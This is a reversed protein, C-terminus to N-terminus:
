ASDVSDAAHTPNGIGTPDVGSTLRLFLQEYQDTIQEWAYQSQARSRALQRYPKVLGEDAVLPELVERLSSAGKAGTYSIGADGVVELNSPMDNVIVCNGAAMAEILVPHTGGVETCVVVAYANSMLERYGNDFVYGTFIVHPGRRKLDAIYRKQYPADGVVVCHLDTHLQEYADVLHHICNEPVLRGVLLLYKRPQLGFSALVGSDIAPALESGYAICETKAGFRDFYYRQMVRSDTVTVTPFRTALWESIRIYARAVKGWKQRRWDSGDVNLVVKTGALRPLFSLPSNGSICMVVVDYREFLAHLCSVLTHSITDLHKTAIGAIYILRMGRYSCERGRAQHRRTYVTVNHGREVLRTGMQEVFTEVGSYRAPVGRTGLFAIRM